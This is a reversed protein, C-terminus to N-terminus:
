GNVKLAADFAHRLTWAFEDIETESLAHHPPDAEHLQRIPGLARSYGSFGRTALAGLLAEGTAWYITCCGRFDGGNYRPAGVRIAAVIAEHVEDLSAVRAIDPLDLLAQTRIRLRELPTPGLADLPLPRGLTTLPVVARGWGIAQEEPSSFIANLVQFLTEYAVEARDGRGESALVAARTNVEVIAAKTAAIHTAMSLGGYSGVAKRARAVGAERAPMTERSTSEVLGRARVCGPVVIRGARVTRAGLHGSNKM